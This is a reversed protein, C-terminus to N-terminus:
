ALVPPPPVVPGIELVAVNLLPLTVISAAAREAKDESSVLVVTNLIDPIAPILIPLKALTWTCIVAGDDAFQLVSAFNYSMFLKSVLM